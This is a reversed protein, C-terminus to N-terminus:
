LIGTPQTISNRKDDPLVLNVGFEFLSRNKRWGLSYELCHAKYGLRLGYDRFRQEDLDYRALLGMRWLKSIPFSAEAALEQRFDVTDFEFPSNGNFDRTVFSLSLNVEPKPVATATIRGYTTTAHDGGSYAATRFAAAGNFYFTKCINYPEWIVWGVLATRSADARDPYERYHGVTGEAAWHLNVKPYLPRPGSLYALEPQRSVLVDDLGTDLNRPGLNRLRLDEKKTLALQAQDTANVRHTAYLGGTIAQHQTLKIETDLFTRERNFSNRVRYRLYIGELKSYGPMPLPLANGSDPGTARGTLNAQFTPLKLLRRGYLELGARHVKIRTPALQDTTQAQALHVDVRHTTLKYHPRALNCTTVEAEYASIRDPFFELRAARLYVQDYQGNVPTMAGTQSTVNLALSDGALQRDASVIRVNGTATVESTQANWTVNNAYLQIAQYDFRANGQASAQAELTYTVQDGSLRYTTTPEEAWLPVALTVLLGLLIIILRNNKYTM